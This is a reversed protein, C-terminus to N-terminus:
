AELQTAALIEARLDGADERILRHLISINSGPYPSLFRLAIGSKNFDAPDYLERGGPANVYTKGGLRTVIERVREPGRLEAPLGLESSRLFQAGLGLRAVTIRLLDALYAAPSLDIRLTRAVIPDNGAALVHPFPRLRERLKQEADAAFCLKEIATDQPCPELPLTLWRLQGSADPLQNRHVWGRRPFQVCDFIVFIDAAVMLRFYGAYPM